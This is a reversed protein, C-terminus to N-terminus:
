TRGCFNGCDFAQKSLRENFPHASFSLAFTSAVKAPNGVSELAQEASKEGEQVVPPRSQCYKDQKETKCSKVFHIATTHHCLRICGFWPLKNMKVCGLM